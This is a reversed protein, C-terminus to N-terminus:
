AHPAAGNSATACTTRSAAEGVGSVRGPLGSAGDQGRALASAHAAIRAALAQIEYIGASGQTDAPLSAKLAEAREHAATAENEAAARTAQCATFRAAAEAAEREVTPQKALCETARAGHQELASFAETAAQRADLLQQELEVFRARAAEADARKAVVYDEANERDRVLASHKQAAGESLEKAQRELLAANEAKKTAAASEAAAQAAKAESSYREELACVELLLEEAAKRTLAVHDQTASLAEISAVPAAYVDDTIAIEVNKEENPMAAYTTAHCIEVPETAAQPRSTEAENSAGHAEFQADGGRLAVLTRRLRSVEPDLGASGAIEPEVAADLSGIDSQSGFGIAVVFSRLPSKRFSAM